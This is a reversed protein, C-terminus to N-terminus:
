LSHFLHWHNTMYKIIIVIGMKDVVILVVQNRYGGSEIKEAFEWEAITEGLVCGAIKKVWGAIQEVEGM